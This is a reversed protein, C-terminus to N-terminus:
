GIRKLNVPTNQQRVRVREGIMEWDPLFIHDLHQDLDGYKCAERNADANDQDLDILPVFVGPVPGIDPSVIGLSSSGLPVNSATKDISKRLKAPQRKRM